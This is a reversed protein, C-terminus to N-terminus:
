NGSGTASADKAFRAVLAIVAPLLLDNWQFGHGQLVPLIAVAAAGLYGVLTTKWSTGLIKDM